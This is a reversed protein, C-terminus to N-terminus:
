LCAVETHQLKYLEAAENRGTESRVESTESSCM